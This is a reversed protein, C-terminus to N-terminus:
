QKNNLKFKAYEVCANWVAEIKTNCDNSFSFLGEEYVECGRPFFLVGTFESTWEIQEVVTMLWNWDCHYKLESAEFTDKWDGNCKMKGFQPLYYPKQLGMFGAILENKEVITLTKM